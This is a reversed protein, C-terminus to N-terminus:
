AAIDIGARAYGESRIAAHLVRDYAKGYGLETFTPIDPLDSYRRDAALGLIRLSGARVHGLLAGTAPFGADVHGGLLQAVTQADGETTVFNFKIGETEMLLNLDMYTIGYSAVAVTLKGPNAKADAIFEALTKWPKKANVTFALPTDHM